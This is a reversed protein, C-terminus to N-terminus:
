SRPGTRVRHRRATRRIHGVRTHTGRSRAAKLAKTADGSSLGVVDPVETATPTEPGQSVAIGVASGVLVETRPTPYQEVVSGAPVDDSYVPASVAQLGADSLM